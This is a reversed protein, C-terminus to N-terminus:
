AKKSMGVEANSMRELDRYRRLPETGDCEPRIRQHSKAASSFRGQVCDRM